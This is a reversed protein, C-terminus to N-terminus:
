GPPWGMHRGFLIHWHLHFVTQGGHEGTNAVVRFGKELKEAAVINKLARHMALATADDLDLMNEMHRRPILLIHGPAVPNIDKFAFTEDDAYVQTAPIKGAVLRCFLCNEM